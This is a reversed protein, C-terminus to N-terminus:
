ANKPPEYTLRFVTDTLWRKFELNDSFQKFLEADDKMLGVIIRGLAKDHEIRANQEDSHKRANQYAEDASVKQPIDKSILQRVRDSDVWNVDGFQENFSKIINSLQELEERGRRAVVEAPAPAIEGEADHLKIKAAAQIEARYSDMDIAQLIGKSLDEDPPTPLKLILFNLFISLKEWSANSFELIASLFQYTRAFAKAKSKFDVQSDEVLRERYTAVVTDLIPDLKDRDAGSLYLGVFDDIQNEDYVQYSDLASKLDHLRNPDTEDGLITTRYYPDFAIRMTDFDNQFDLVATDYKQPHARNLRSLTQVAKVGSLHKDVYMTHLLPEDYGTQFKHACILFRYPDEEIKDVIASSSFKNLASETVKVGNYEHEGSFAVISRYPSKTEILYSTMAYFYKIARDVSKTVVMARAQGGIKRKSLVHQDFHDIIIAAKTRIAHDHSEVYQRLKKNARKVDFEPDDQVTKVLQYYSNVPSYHELVDLIFREQIAQKMTYS